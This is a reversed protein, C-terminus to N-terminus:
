LPEGVDGDIAGGRGGAAAPSERAPPLESPPPSRGGESAGRAEGAGSGGGLDPNRPCLGRESRRTRCTVRPTRPTHGPYDRPAGRTERPTVLAPPYPPGHRPGGH